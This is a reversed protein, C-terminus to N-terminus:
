HLKQLEELIITNIVDRRLKLEAPGIGLAGAVQNRVDKKSVTMLDCGGLIRSVASRIAEDPIGSEWAQPAPAVNNTTNEQQDMVVQNMAAANVMNPAFQNESYAPASMNPISSYPSVMGVGPNAMNMNTNMNMSNNPIMGGYTNNIVMSQHQLPSPVGFEAANVPVSMRNAMNQSMHDPVMGSSAFSPNQRMPVGARVMDPNFSNRYNPDVFNNNYMMSARQNEDWAENYGNHHPNITFKSVGNNQYGYGYGYGGGEPIYVSATASGPGSTMLRSMARPINGIASGSRPVVSGLQSGNEEKDKNSSMDWVLEKEYDSWKRMPITAPDFLDAEDANVLIKAGSEGVVIRTNGWSFDDFHWFSYVPIICSFLPIALLYIIMWGIHQWQRHFIFVLAQMAYIGVLLYVSVYSTNADASTLQYALIALYGLTAPMVLTSILDIFVVFRMSFCCFGCMNSLFALEFLNHVTSNIWRRRQSVLISWSDPANTECKADAIFRTKYYSFNKLMLTTLYRDEGLYLLNKKHLTDAKNTSYEEIINNAILLPAKDVGRMRYMTFCGPLCTVTGFLSEFAKSLHHAIFYEYVQMMTTWSSKANALRTEGCIGMTKSDHQLASVLRNLSDEYVITDADVMFVLEYYGPNVGIVNKIQHFMELELPTMPSNFHVKNFFRMLLIQSDRKGRNGPKSRELPTGCKAIVLYPVVRGAIEYLGSYVKAMNHQKMGDGLAIYSLAESDENSNVGLIDLVIRPTPRDNGAGMIMGDCVIFLLKRKDDYKLKALSDITGRLSEEGETYCPINCVVFINSPEPERNS